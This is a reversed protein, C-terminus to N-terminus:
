QKIYINHFVSAAFKTHQKYNFDVGLLEQLYYIYLDFTHFGPLKNNRQSTRSCM